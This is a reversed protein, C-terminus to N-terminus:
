MFLGGGGRLRLTLYIVSHEQVKYDSLKMGDMMEQGEHILRQQNVPVGERAQVKAKFGAVSEDPTIDYTSTIGKENKLFVQFTTRQIIILSVVCGSHLGYQKLQKNNDDLTTKHGNEFVLRQCYPAVQLAQSIRQKLTAVTDEPSVTLTCTTGNLMKITLEM